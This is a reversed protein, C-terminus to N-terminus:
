KKTGEYAIVPCRSEHHWDIAAMREATEQNFGEGLYDQAAERLYNEKALIQDAYLCAQIWLIGAKDAGLHAALADFLGSQTRFRSDTAIDRPTVPLSRTTTM